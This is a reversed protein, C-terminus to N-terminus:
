LSFIRGASLVETDIGSRAALEALARDCSDHASILLREVQEYKLAAIVDDLDEDDLVRWPPLGTGLIRQVPFGGYGRGETLPLHMGGVVAHIPTEFVRVVQDLITDIGPHGCGSFVVLGRGELNAVLSLEETYGMFFLQRALPGPTALGAALHCPGTIVSPVWGSVNARDPLYCPRGQPSSWGDPLSIRRTRQAILGGMHDLHLHSIALASVTDLDVGLMRANHAFVPTSGGFGVDYLVSGRDTQILYSVGPDRYFGDEVEWEVVVLVELSQIPELVLTPASEFRQRNTAAVRHQGRKFRGYLAAALPVAVSASMAAVPWWSRPIFRSM